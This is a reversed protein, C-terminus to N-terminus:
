SRVYMLLYPECAAVQEWSVLKVHADSAKFWLLKGANLKERGAALSERLQQAARKAKELDATGTVGDGGATKESAKGDTTPGHQATKGSAAAKKSAAAAAPGNAQPQAEKGQVASPLAPQGSPLRASYSIYHGGAMSGQHEVVGVLTYQAGGADEGKVAALSDALAWSPISEKHQWLRIETQQESDWCDRLHKLSSWVHAFARLNPSAHLESGCVDEFSLSLSPPAFNSAPM